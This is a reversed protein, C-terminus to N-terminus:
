EEPQGMLMQIIARAQEAEEPSLKDMISELLANVDVEEGNEAASIINGFLQMFSDFENDQPIEAPVYTGDAHYELDTANYSIGQFCASKVVFDDFDEAESREMYLQFSADVVFQYEFLGHILDIIIDGDEGGGHGSIEFGADKLDKITKGVLVDLDAQDLLSSSIDETYAVPLSQALADLEQTMQEVDELEYLADRRAAVDEDYEAVMRIYSGEYEVITVYYNNGPTMSWNWASYPTPTAETVAQQVTAFLPTDEAAAGVAACLMIAALLLAIIKKM